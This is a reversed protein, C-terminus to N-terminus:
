NLWLLDLRMRMMTVKKIDIMRMLIMKLTGKLAKSYYSIGEGTTAKM